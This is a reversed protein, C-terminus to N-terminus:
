GQGAKDLRAKLRATEMKGVSTFLGLWVGKGRKNGVRCKILEVGRWGVRSYVHGGKEIPENLV